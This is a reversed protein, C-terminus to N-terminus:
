YDTERGMIMLSLTIVRGAEELNELNISGLQDVV